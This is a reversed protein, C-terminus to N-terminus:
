RDGATLACGAFMVAGRAPEPVITLTPQYGRGILDDIM